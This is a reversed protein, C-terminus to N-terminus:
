AAMEEPVWTALTTTRVVQTKTKAISSWNAPVHSGDSPSFFDIRQKTTQAKPRPLVRLKVRQEDECREKWLPVNVGSRDALWKITEPKAIALALLRTTSEDPYTTENEYRSFAIKGKGFIRSAQQQTLGYRRRLAHIEEGMLLEGYHAKRAALRRLNEDHQSASTAEAGCQDCISTLLSVALAKGHPNFVRESTREHLHGNRCAPCARHVQVEVAGQKRATSM